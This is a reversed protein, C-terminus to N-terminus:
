RLWNTMKKLLEFELKPRYEPELMVFFNSALDM